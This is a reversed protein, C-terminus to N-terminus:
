VKSSLLIHLKRFLWPPPPTTFLQHPFRAPYLFVVHTNWVRTLFLRFVFSVKKLSLHKIIIKVCCQWLIFGNYTQLLSFNNFFYYWLWSPRKLRFWIYFINNLFSFINIVYLLFLICTTRIYFTVLRCEYVPRLTEIKNTNKFLYM